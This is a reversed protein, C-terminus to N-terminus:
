KPPGSHTKAPKKHKADAGPPLKKEPMSDFHIKISEDIQSQDLNVIVSGVTIQNNVPTVGPHAFLEVIATAVISSGVGVAFNVALQLTANSQRSGLRNRQNILSFSVEQSLTAQLHKVLATAQDLPVSVSIPIQIQSADVSTM